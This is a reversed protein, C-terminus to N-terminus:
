MMLDGAVPGAGCPGGAFPSPAACPTPSITAFPNAATAPGTPQVWQWIMIDGHMGGTIFLGATKADLIAKVDSNQKCVFSGRPRFDPLDYATIYGFQQGCLLMLKNAYPHMMLEVATNSQHEGVSPHSLVQNGSGDFAKVDGNRYTAVMTGQCELLATVPHESTITGKAQLTSLDICTIGQQGGVWLGGNVVRVATVPGCPPQLPTGFCEFRGTEPRVTWLRVYGDNSGSILVGSHVALDTISRRHGKLREQQHPPQQCYGQIDGNWLGCFLWKSTPEWFISTVSSGMNIPAGEPVLQVGGGPEPEPRWMMLTEDRSGSAVKGDVMAMCNIGQSHGMSQPMTWIRALESGKGLMPGTAADDASVGAGSGCAGAPVSAFPNRAVPAQGAGGRQFGGKGTWAM